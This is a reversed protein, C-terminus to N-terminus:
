RRARLEAVQADSLAFMDAVGRQRVIAKMIVMASTKDPTYNATFKGPARQVVGWEDTLPFRKVFIRTNLDLWGSTKEKPHSARLARAKGSRKFAESSKGFLKPSVRITM